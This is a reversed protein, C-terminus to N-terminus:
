ARGHLWSAQVEKWCPMQAESLSLLAQWDEEPRAWLNLFNYGCGEVSSFLDFDLWIRPCPFCIGGKELCIYIYLNKIRLFFILSCQPETAAHLMKWQLAHVRMTACLSISQLTLSRLDRVPFQVWTGVNSPLNKVVPGGPLDWIGGNSTLLPM